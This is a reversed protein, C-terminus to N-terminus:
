DGFAGEWWCSECETSEPFAAADSTVWRNCESCVFAEDERAEAWCEPCYDEANRDGAIGELTAPDVLEFCGPCEVYTTVDM